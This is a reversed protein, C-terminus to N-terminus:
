RYCGMNVGCIDVNHKRTFDSLFKQSRSTMLNVANNILKNPRSYTSVVGIQTLYKGMQVMNPGGSDGPCYSATGRKGLRFNQGKIRNIVTWGINLKGAPIPRPNTACGYGKILIPMNLTPEVGGISIYDDGDLDVVKNTYGLAIDHAPVGGFWGSRSSAEFKVSYFTGDWTHFTKNGSRKVCHAATLLVREGIVSATCGGSIKVVAKHDIELAPEGGKVEKDAMLKPCGCGVATLVIFLYKMWNRM